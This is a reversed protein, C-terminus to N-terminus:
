RENEKITLKNGVYLVNSKTPTFDLAQAKNKNIWHINFVRKELMGPFSGQRADMVLTNNAASYKIPIVAKVGKEYNYTTDEDEYLNFVADKGTYVYLQITDAKRQNSYEMEPGFPVISGERVMVPIRDYGASVVIQHGGNYYKGTYLDYWGTTGPLYISKKRQGYGYVPSIMLSPGFLYQDNITSTRRDSPFDMMLGRMLSYDNFYTKAALSYIYPLLRYRLKDYYLMSQYATDRENSVNYIERFPYQGHVRFLPCFAGFQYWRTMQEKWEKADKANPNEYRREVAFGGIDMTWYPLGSMSYNVGAAVQNMMDHWRAAIDGSWVSAAYRQSGAYASRTLIFVRKNPDELRQGEYIAKANVLPYANFYKVASGMANPFMLNKRQEISLNSHIDPEPADMWWADIGKSYLHQNILNWFAKNAAPNFADYFTSVYGLWDKRNEEINRTLLYGNSKFQDYNNTGTYFKPWVSVMFHTHYLHHLSDIMGVPDSFRAPDFDQSGWQDPRWYQWDMVINDIPIHRKRFEKITSMVEEQSKYRERSQWFGFAWKPLIPAKGTLQRYGSIVADSNNGYVFYYNINNAAESELIFQKKNSASPPQMWNCSIFSESGDPIWEMKYSYRKGAIMEVPVIATAPNWCQRWRDLVLKNDLWLKVYGGYRVSFKHLGSQAAEMSGSWTAVGDNLSFAVPFKVLDALYDYSIEAEKREMIVTRNKKSLYTATLANPQGKADYLKLKPMPQYTRGDNFSTISYNDWLIGYNKSSVLFPIAIETNNQLLQVEQGKLTILGQQHQGLGYFAEDEASTFAQQVAYSNGTEIAVPNFSTGENQTVLIRKGKSDKFSVLGTTLSVNVELLSTKITCTANGAKYSWKAFPVSKIVMLTTDPEIEKAASSTVHIISPSVVQLRVAKAPAAAPYVIIGDNIKHIQSNQAYVAFSFFMSCIFATFGRGHVITIM